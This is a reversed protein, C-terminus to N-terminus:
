FLSGPAASAPAPIGLLHALTAAVRLQDVPESMRQQPVRAGFALVPVQRDYDYPTGHNTGREAPDRLDLPYHPEPLFM